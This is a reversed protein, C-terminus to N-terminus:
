GCKHGTEQGDQLGTEVHKSGSVRNRGGPGLSVGNKEASVSRVIDAVNWEEADRDLLSNRRDHV